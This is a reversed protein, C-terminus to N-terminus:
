ALIAPDVPLVLSLPNSFPQEKTQQLLFWFVGNDWVKTLLPLNTWATNVYVHICMPWPHTVLETHGRM